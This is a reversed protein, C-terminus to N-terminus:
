PAAAIEALTRSVRYGRAPCDVAGACTPDPCGLEVGIAEVEQGSVDPGDGPRGVRPVHKFVNRAVMHKLLPMALDAARDDTIGVLQECLKTDHWQVTFYLRRADVDFYYGPGFVRYSRAGITWTWDFLTDLKDVTVSIKTPKGAVEYSIM